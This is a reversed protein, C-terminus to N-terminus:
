QPATTGENEVNWKKQSDSLVDSYGVILLYLVRFINYWWFSKLFIKPRAQDNGM